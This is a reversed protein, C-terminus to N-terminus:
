EPGGIYENPVRLHPPLTHQNFEKACYACIFIYNHQHDRQGGISPQGNPKKHPCQEQRALQQQRGAEMSKAIVKRAQLRSDKTAQKETTEETLTTLQLQLLAKKMALTEADEGPLAHTQLIDAATLEKSM